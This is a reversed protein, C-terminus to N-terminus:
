NQHDNNSALRSAENFIQKNLRDDIMNCLRHWFRICNLKTVTAIPLCGMDGILAVTPGNRGVGLFRKMLNNQIKEIDSYVKYGWLFSSYEIIPLVLMNYLHTYVEYVLAGNNRAKAILYNAARNAAKSTDQILQTLRLHVFFNISCNVCCQTTLQRLNM